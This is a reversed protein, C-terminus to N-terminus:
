IRSTYMEFDNLTNITVTGRSDEELSLNTDEAESAKRPLITTSMSLTEYGSTKLSFERLHLIIKSTLVSHFVRQLEPLLFIYLAPLKTNIQLIFSSLSFAFLCIFFLIGDRYLVRLLGDRHSTKQQKIAKWVTLLVIVLEVVMVMTVNIYLKNPPIVVICRTVSPFPSKAWKLVKLVSHLNFIMPIDACLVLVCLFCLVIKSQNWIAYTRLAIIWLAIVVGFQVLGTEWHSLYRM